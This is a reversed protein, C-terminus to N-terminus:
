KCFSIKPIIGIPRFDPFAAYPIGRAVLDDVLIGDTGYADTDPWYAIDRRLVFNMTDTHCSRPPDSYFRGGLRTIPFIAWPETINQLAEAVDLFIRPDPYFNDDDCFMIWKGSASKLAEIRPTNGGNNYRKDMALWIRQGVNRHNTCKEMLNCDLVGGDVAILHEFDTFAQQDISECTQILSERQITPTIISFFPTM